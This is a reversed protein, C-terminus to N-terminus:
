QIIIQNKFELNVVACREWWRDGVRTKYFRGLKDLKQDVDDLDGFVVVQDGVNPVLTVRWSLDVWMQVVLDRAFDDKQVGQVFNILKKLNIELKPYKKEISGYFNRDFDFKFNGNVIPVSYFYPYVTPLVTLNETLYFDWGDSSNIRVIPKRPAIKVWCTGDLDSYVEVSDVYVESEILDEIKKLEVEARIKGKPDLGASIIKQIITDAIIFKVSTDALDIVMKKCEVQKNDYLVIAACFYGVLILILGINLAIKVNRNM